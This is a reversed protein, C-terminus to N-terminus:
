DKEDLPLSFTFISGMGEISEARITGGHHTVIERCIYLGLGMGGSRMVGARPARYFRDFLHPLENPAIGVGRDRVSVFAAGDEAWVRIDVDGSEPSYTIANSMLNILVQEIRATDGNVEIASEAVLSLHHTDSSVRMTNVVEGALATLDFPETNLQLRGAEIRSVDLMENVLSALRETQKRIVGLSRRDSERGVQASLRRDM